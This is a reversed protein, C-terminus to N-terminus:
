TLQQNSPFTLSAEPIGVAKSRYCLLIEGEQSVTGAEHMGLRLLLNRSRNNEARTIAAIEAFGLAHRAYHLTAHAAEAVYGKGEFSPLAAFGIDPVDLFDRRLLGCMGIPADNDRSEICWLGYGWERYQKLPGQLLYQTADAETHVQRDGIFRLWGPSNLLDRIFAADASTFKRLRIRATQPLSRM